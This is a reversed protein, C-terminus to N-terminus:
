KVIFPSGHIVASHPLQHCQHLFLLFTTFKPLDNREQNEDLVYSIQCPARKVGWSHSFIHFKSIEVVFFAHFSPSFAFFTFPTNKGSVVPTLKKNNNYIFDYKSKSCKPFVGGLLPFNSEFDSIFIKWIDWRMKQLSCPPWIDSKDSGKWKRHRRNTKLIYFKM